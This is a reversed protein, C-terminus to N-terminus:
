PMLTGILIDTKGTKFAGLAREAVFKECEGLTFPMLRIRCTVRNHLAGQEPLAPSAARSKRTLRRQAIM